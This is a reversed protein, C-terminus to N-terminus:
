SVAKSFYLLEVFMGFRLRTMSVNKSLGNPYVLLYFLIFINCMVYWYLLVFLSGVNRDFFNRVEQLVGVYYTSERYPSVFVCMFM